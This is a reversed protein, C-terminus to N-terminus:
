VFSYFTQELDDLCRGHKFFSVDKVLSPTYVLLCQYWILLRIAMM